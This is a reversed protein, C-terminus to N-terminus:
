ESVKSRLELTEAFFMQKQSLVFPSTIRKAHIDVKATQCISGYQSFTVLELKQLDRIAKKAHNAITKINLNLM